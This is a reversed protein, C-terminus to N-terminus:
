AVTLHSIKYKEHLITLEELTLVNEAEESDDQASYRSALRGM